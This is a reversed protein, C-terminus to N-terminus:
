PEDVLVLLPVAHIAFFGLGFPILIDSIGLNVAVIIIIAHQEKCNRESACVVFDTTGPNPVLTADLFITSDISAVLIGDSIFPITEQDDSWLLNNKIVGIHSTITSPAKTRNWTEKLVWVRKLFQSRRRELKSTSTSIPTPSQPARTLTLKRESRARDQQRSTRTNQFGFKQVSSSIEVQELKKHVQKPLVFMWNSSYM